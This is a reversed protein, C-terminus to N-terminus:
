SRLPQSAARVTTTEVPRGIVEELLITQQVLLRGQIIKLRERIQERLSHREDLLRNFQQKLLDVDFSEVHQCYAGLGMEALVADNKEAYSLSITPRALKLACIVNHYRTAVVVDTERIQDMLDHLTRGPEAVVRALNQGLERAALREMLHKVATLDDADGVLLRVMFGSNALWSVFDALKGLYARYIKESDGSNKAWGRYSMVGVGVTLPGPIRPELRPTPLSFAIDPYVRDYRVDFGISAMFSRSVEDRYSRFVALRAAAKMLRRSLPHHIPGAGVSVFALRAGAWKAGVCWRFLVYPWGSPADQFDDLIGTGPVIVLDLGRAQRYASLLNFARHPVNRLAGNLWALIGNDSPPASISICSIGYDKEIVAPNSCICLLEADPRVRRLFNIMAELSGDNGSNGSGFQGLLGIKM